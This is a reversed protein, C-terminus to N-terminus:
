SKRTTEGDSHKIEQISNSGCVLRSTSSHAINNFTAGQVYHEFHHTCRNCHHCFARTLKEDRIIKNTNSGDNDSLYFGAIYGVIEYPHLKAMDHLILKLLPVNLRRGFKYVYWKHKAFTFLFGNYWASVCRDGHKLLLLCYLFSVITLFLAVVHIILYHFM